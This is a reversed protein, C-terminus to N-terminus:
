KEPHFARYHVASASDFRALTTHVLERLAHSAVIGGTQIDSLRGIITDTLAAADELAESRHQCSAYISVFLKDRVFPQLGTTPTDRAVTLGEALQAAEITTFVAGCQRCERRRWTRNLRKQPRSNTVDTKSGCYICVM